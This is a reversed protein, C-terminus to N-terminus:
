VPHGCSKSPRSFVHLLQDELLTGQPVAPGRRSLPGRVGVSQPGNHSSARQGVDLPHDLNLGDSTPLNTRLLAIFSCSLSLSCCFTASTPMSSEMTCSRAIWFIVDGVPHLFLRDVLPTEDRRRLIATRFHV